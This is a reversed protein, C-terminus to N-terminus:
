EVLRTGLGDDLTNGQWCQTALRLAMELADPGDDHDGAPFERLQQVLLATGPSDSRFRLRRQALFSGLRRIRVRKNVQNDVPTPPPALVAQRALEVSLEGALLDQFQNAELGWADPQFRGCAAATEAIVESLPRRWLYAEVYLTGQPDVALLVLAAYDGRRDDRGKSPDLAMTKVQLRAPWATFWIGADFYKEPWECAEPPLPRNQKEREFAAHGGEARMCMLTYLDEEEPWLLIAGSQMAARHQEFYDRAAQRYDHQALDTYIAEWAEWLDLADPWKEIAAFLGTIWGPNHALELALAERHLATALHIVNTRATGAKMLTGHFWRRSHERQAASEIHSDNQLDDAVILSPRFAGRRRGRIRQGSGFAEITVGDSLVLRGARWGRPNGIAPGYDRRLSDNEALEIRLNELHAYAQHRTDSVIWIYPEWGELAARLPYALSGLTSKAGGRPGLVNLKVGRATQLEALRHALWLHMRSPPRRFHNPLYHRGWALLDATLDRAAARRIAEQLYRRLRDAAQHLPVDLRTM